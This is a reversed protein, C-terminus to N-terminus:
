EYPPDGLYQEITPNATGFVVIRTWAHHEDCIQGCIGKILCNFCPCIKVLEPHDMCMTLSSPLTVYGPTKNCWCGKCEKHHLRKLNIKIM